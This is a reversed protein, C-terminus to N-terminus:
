PVFKEEGIKLTVAGELGEVELWDEGVGLLKVATLGITNPRDKSRQAFIGVLPLEALGRPRRQLQEHADYHAKNLYTVIIVHSFAELGMLGGRYEAELVIKSRVAGWDLDLKDEVSNHVVGVPTLNIKDM